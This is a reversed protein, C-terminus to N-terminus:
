YDRREGRLRQALMRQEIQSDQMRRVRARILGRDIATQISLSLFGMMVFAGLAESFPCIAGGILACISPELVRATLEKRVFPVKMALWPYGAYRTHEIWGRRTRVTSVIRQILMVGLWVYLFILMEPHRGMSGYGVIMFLAVIADLRFCELGFSHRIFPTLCASHGSVILYLLHMSDSPKVSPQPEQDNKM